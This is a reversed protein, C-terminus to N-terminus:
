QITTEILSPSGELQDYYNKASSFNTFVKVTHDNIDIGNSFFGIVVYVKNTSNQNIQGAGRFGSLGDGESEDGQFGEKLRNEVLYKKLDFNDM